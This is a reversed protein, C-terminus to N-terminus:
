RSGRLRPDLVDRLADGLMNFGYVTLAIALGPFLTIYPHERMHQQADRLMRGWSPAPPPVGYGLFSLASEILLVAGVQLSINVLALPLVNPLIHRIMIRGDSAGLVRAADIFAQGKVVLTQSRILRSAGASFLFGASLILTDEGAGYISALFIVFILGPFAQWIDVFRQVVIDVWGAFYGSAIGVVLSVVTAIAVAAFSVKISTRAGYVVRSFIDRGQNDTGFYHDTSPSEFRESLALKDYGRTAIQDPFAALILMVLIIAAGVTGLPKTRAFHLIARSWRAWADSRRPARDFGLDRADPFAASTM